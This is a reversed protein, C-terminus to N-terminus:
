YPGCHGHINRNDIAEEATYEKVDHPKFLEEFIEPPYGKGHFKGGFGAEAMQWDWIRGNKEIWAHQHPPKNSFPMTILGHFVKVSKDRMAQGCAWQFCEGCPASTELWQKFSM